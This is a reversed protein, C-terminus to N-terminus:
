WKEKLLEATERLVKGNKFVIQGKCGADLSIYELNFELVPYERSVNEVFSEGPASATTYSYSVKEKGDFTIEANFADGRTGWNTEGQRSYEAFFNKFQFPIVKGDDDKGCAQSKLKAIEKEDGSVTLVNDYFNPM